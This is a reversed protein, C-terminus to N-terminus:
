SLLQEQFGGIKNKKDVFHMELIWNRKQKNTDLEFMNNHNEPHICLQFDGSKSKEHPFQGIIHGAIEGGFEWGYEIAKKEAFEFLESAKLHTHKDYWNKVEQWAKEIDNKLKLKLPDNGVVYTKAVDVEWKDVIPGLDIFLIDNEQIIINVPNEKYELLTNEGSRVIRKHWHKEIGFLEKSLNFIENNLTKEDKGAVILQRDEIEKFLQFVIKEAKILNVTDM